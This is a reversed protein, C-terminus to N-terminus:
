RSLASLLAQAETLEPFQQTPPFDEVAPALVAHADADRDAARYLKALSLAARLEFSRAKQSQAISVAAEALAAELTPMLFVNGQERRIALGRRMGALRSADAGDSWEGWGQLFTAWGVWIAPLDYRSVIDALTRGDAAVAELDRRLLGLLARWQVVYAMTPAHAPSKADALARDALALSDDVSGLVWLTIADSMEASARPDTGFRNAFDAHRAQDYLELTRQHHDHAGAFDGFYFRTGGFNRHAILAEPCDPRATAERLFLEAIERM